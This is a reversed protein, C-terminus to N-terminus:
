QELAEILHMALAGGMASIQSPFSLSQSPATSLLALPVPAAHLLLRGPMQLGPEIWHM